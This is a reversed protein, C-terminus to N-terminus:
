LMRFNAQKQKKNNKKTVVHIDKDGEKDRIEEVRELAKPFLSFSTYNLLM